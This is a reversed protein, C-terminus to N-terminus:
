KDIAALAADMSEPSMAGPQMQRLIGNRDIFFQAPIASVRYASAITTDPDAIKPYTLGVRTAYDKVAAADESIFVQVVVTGNAKAKDYAAQIDPMETQCAQCWTAGFTVWVPRGKLSSLSVPTGDVTTASFDQAAKGIEPAPGTGEQSLKVSTTGDANTAPTTPRNVWWLGGLVLATTVLLVALTGVRSTRLRSRWDGESPMRRTGVGAALGAAPDDLSGTDIPHDAAPAGTSAPAVVQEVQATPAVEEVDEFSEDDALDEPDLYRADIGQDRDSRNM